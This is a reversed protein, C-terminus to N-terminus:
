KSLSCSETTSQGKRLSFYSPRNKVASWNKDRLNIFVRDKDGMLALAATELSGSNAEGIREVLISAVRGKLELLAPISKALDSKTENSSSRAVLYYQRRPM